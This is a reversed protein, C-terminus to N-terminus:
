RPNNLTVLDTFHSFCIIDKVLLTLPYTSLVSLLTQTCLNTTDAMIGYRLSIGQPTGGVLHEVCIILQTVFKLTSSLRVSQSYSLTLPAM